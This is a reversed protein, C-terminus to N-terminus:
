KLSTTLLYSYIKMAGKKSLCKAVVDRSGFIKIVLDAGFLHRNIEIRRVNRIPVSVKDIGIIYYNRKSVTIIKLDGDLEVRHPFLFDLIHDGYFINSLLSGTARIFM